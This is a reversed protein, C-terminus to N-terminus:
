LSIDFINLLKPHFTLFTNALNPNKSYENQTFFHPRPSARSKRKDLRLFWFELAFLERSRRSAGGIKWSLPLGWKGWGKYTVARPPGHVMKFWLKGLNPYTSCLALGAFIPFKQKKSKLGKFYQKWMQAFKQSTPYLGM